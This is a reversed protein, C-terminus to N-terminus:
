GSVPPELREGRWVAAGSRVMEDLLMPVFAEPTVGFARRAHDGFWPAVLLAAELAAREMGAEIYLQHGLIRKCAHWGIRTPEARWSAVRRRARTLAAPVDTVAPGHGSLLLAPALEAVVEITAEVQELARPDADLDLWGVDAEHVADGGVLTRSAPEFFGVQGATHGPLAVVRWAAAGTEVVDGAELMRDVRFAPVFQCLWASRCADAAGANVPGAEVAPAAIPVGLAALAHNGGVHDSHCHTNVLLSPTRGLWALLGEAGGPAGSDVLVPATGELLVSNAHPFARRLFRGTM